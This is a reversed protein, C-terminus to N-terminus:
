DKEREKRVWREKMFRSMAAPSVRGNKDRYALLAESMQGLPSPTKKRKRGPLRQIINLESEIRALREALAPCSKAHRGNVPASSFDARCLPRGLRDEVCELCMMGIILPNIRRWISDKLHFYESSELTDKGCDM